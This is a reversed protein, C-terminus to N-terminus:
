IILIKLFLYIVNLFRSEAESRIDLEIHAWKSLVPKQFGRRFHTNTLLEGLLFISKLIYKLINQSVGEFYSSEGTLHFLWNGLPLEARKNSQQSIMQNWAGPKEASQVGPHIKLDKNGLEQQSLAMTASWGAQMTWIGHLRLFGKRQTHQAPQGAFGRCVMCLIFLKRDRSMLREGCEHSPAKPAKMGKEREMLEKDRSPNKTDQSQEPSKKCLKQAHGPATDWQSLRSGVSFLGPVRISGARNM